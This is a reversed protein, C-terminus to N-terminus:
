NKKRLYINSSITRLNIEVGGNNISGNVKGGGVRKLREEGMDLEVNTFIEGTVTSMRIDAPTSEPMTVDVFGSTNSISSPLEQNIKAFVVEIDGSTCHAVVPGSVERIFIDSGKGEVEVEGQMDSVTIENGQWGMEIVKVNVSRPVRIIYDIDAGIAKYATMKNGSEKVELGINTNDVASNFMSRLGEARAPPGDYGDQNRTKFIVENGDYGKIMLAGKQFEIELFREGTGSFAKKFESQATLFHMQLSMLLLGIIIKKM